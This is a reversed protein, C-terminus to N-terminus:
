HCGQIDFFLGVQLRLHHTKREMRTSPPPARSAHISSIGNNSSSGSTITGNNITHVSPSAFMGRKPTEIVSKREVQSDHYQLITSAGSGGSVMPKTPTMTGPLPPSSNPQRDFSPTSLVISSSLTPSVPSGNLMTILQSVQQQLLAISSQQQQIMQDRRRERVETEALAADTRGCQRELLSMHNVMATTDSLHLTLTGKKGGFECGWRGYPCPSEALPCSTSLHHALQARPLLTVTKCDNPCSIPLAPCQPKHDNMNEATMSMHCHDCTVERRPCTRTEHDLLLSRKHSTRCWRCPLPVHGCDTLHKALDGRRGSWEKCDLHLCRVRMDDVMRQLYASTHLQSVQLSKRCVPCESKTAHVSALICQRCFLHGCPTDV